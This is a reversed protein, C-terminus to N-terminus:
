KLKEVVGRNWDELFEKRFSPDVYFLIAFSCLGLLCFMLTYYGFILLNDM